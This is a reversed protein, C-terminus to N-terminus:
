GPSHFDSSYVFYKKVPCYKMVYTLCHAATNTYIVRGGVKLWKKAPRGLTQPYAGKCVVSARPSNKPCTQPCARRMGKKACLKSKQGGFRRSLARGCFPRNQGAPTNGRRADEDADFADLDLADAEAEVDAEAEDTLDGALFEDTAADYEVADDQAHVASTTFALIALSLVILKM